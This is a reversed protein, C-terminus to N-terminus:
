CTGGEAQTATAVTGKAKELQRELRLQHKSAKTLKAEAAQQDRSSPTDGLGLASRDVATIPSSFFAVIVDDLELVAGIGYPSADTTVTTRDANSSGPSLLGLIVDRSGRQM